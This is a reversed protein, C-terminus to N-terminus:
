RDLEFLPLAAADSAPEFVVRVRDGIRVDDAPAGVVNSMLRPGDDLDILVVVFPIM